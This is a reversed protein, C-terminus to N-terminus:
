LHHGHDLRTTAVLGAFIMLHLWPLGLLIGGLRHFALLLCLCDLTAVLIHHLLVVRQSKFFIMFVLFM